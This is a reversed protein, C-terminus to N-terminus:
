QEIEEEVNVKRRDDHRVRDDLLRNVDDIRKKLKSIGQNIEQLTFSKIEVTPPDASKRKSAM